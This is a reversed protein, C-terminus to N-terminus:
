VCVYWVCVCVVCVNLCIIDYAWKIILLPPRLLTCDSTLCGNLGAIHCALYISGIYIIKTSIRNSVNFDSNAWLHSCNKHLLASTMLIRM